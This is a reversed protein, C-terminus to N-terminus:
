ERPRWPVTGETYAEVAHPVDSRPFSIAFGVLDRALAGEPDVFLARRDRGPTADQGSHRSIPYLLLLGHDPARLERAVVSRSKRRGEDSLQKLREDLSRLQGASLGIAEDGPDTIVGLSDTDKLRSRSIQNVAGGPIGWDVDGLTRDKTRRGCVAVTWNSLEGAAVSNAIYRDVLPISFGEVLGDSRYRRLFEVVKDVPVDRWV